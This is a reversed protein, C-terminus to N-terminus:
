STRWFRLVQTATVWAKGQLSYLSSASLYDYLQQVTYDSQPDPNSMDVDDPDHPLGSQHNVLDLITIQKGDKTPLKVSSPLYEQALDDLSMQGKQVMDLLLLQTFLKTISGTEFETDGNPTEDGKLTTKGYGWVKTDGKYTVGVVIGPCWGQQIIPSILSDVQSKLQDISLATSQALLLRPIM